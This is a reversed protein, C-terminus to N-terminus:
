ARSAVADGRRRRVNELEPMVIQRLEGEKSRLLLQSGDMLADIVYRTLGLAIGVAHAKSKADALDHIQKANDADRDTLVMTVKPM